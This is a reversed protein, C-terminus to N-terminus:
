QRLGRIIRRGEESGALNMLEERDQDVDFLEEEGDQNWIYHYGGRITSKMDGKTLPYWPQQAGFDRKSAESILIDEAVGGKEKGWHRSLSEGTFPSRDELGALDM